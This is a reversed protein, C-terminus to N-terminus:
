ITKSSFAIYMQFLRTVTKIKMEVSWYTRNTIAFINTNEMLVSRMWYFLAFILKTSLETNTQLQLLYQKKKDHM